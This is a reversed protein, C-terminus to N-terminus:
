SVEKAARIESNGKWGGGGGGGRHPVAVLSCETGNM